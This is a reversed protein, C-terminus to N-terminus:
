GALPKRSSRFRLAHELFLSVHSAERRVRIRVPTSTDRDDIEVRRRRQQPSTEDAVQELGESFLNWSM